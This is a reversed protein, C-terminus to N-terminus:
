LKRVFYNYNGSSTRYITIVVIKIKPLNLKAACIELDKEICINHTAITNFDISEHM